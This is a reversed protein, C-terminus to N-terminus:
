WHVGRPFDAGRRDSSLENMTAAVHFTRQWINRLMACYVVLHDFLRLMKDCCLQMVKNYRNSLRGQSVVFNCPIAKCEPVISFNNTCM